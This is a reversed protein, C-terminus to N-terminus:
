KRQAAKHRQAKTAFGGIPELAYVTLWAGSRKINNGKDPHFVAVFARLHVLFIANVEKTRSQTKTGNHRVRRQTDQKTM